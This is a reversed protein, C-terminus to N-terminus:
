IVGTLVLLACGVVVVAIMWFAGEFLTETMKIKYEHEDM